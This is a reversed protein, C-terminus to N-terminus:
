AVYFAFFFTANFGPSRNCGRKLRMMTSTERKQFLILANHNLIVLFLRGMKLNNHLPVLCWPSKSPPPLCHTHTARHKIAFVVGCAEDSTSWM